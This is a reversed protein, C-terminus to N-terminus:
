YAMSEDLEVSVIDSESHNGGLRSVGCPVTGRQAEETPLGEERFGNNNMHSLLPSVSVTSLSSSGWNTTRVISHSPVGSVDLAGYEPISLTM